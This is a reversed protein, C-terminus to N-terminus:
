SEHGGVRLAARLAGLKQETEDWEREPISDAVIGAGAQLYLNAENAFLTRIAIASDMNGNLSFYGVIGAYPGRRSKELEAIIEMARVKPAGTVTGAPFLAVLADLCDKSPKLRGEVKSVIHQVHSFREVGMYEPVRVSGFESVKGLDNRALDVLMNHEACEKEDALLEREYAKREAENKGLPRTGAIPYTSIVGNQVAVLMEPSSGAIVRDFFDLYYMYPSPNLRRLARYVRFLDGSYKAHLKKSLVVQYIDGAKIYEKARKVGEIFEERTTDSRPEEHTFRAEQASQHTSLKILSRIESSRDRDHSFYYAYNRKHDYAIGDLYLGLEFDPFLKEGGQPIKEIYRVFDYSIYGVLGGIYKFPTGKPLGFQALTRRLYGIPDQTQEQYEGNVFIRGEKLAIVCLPDFGIFTFEALRQPGPSSELIFSNKYNRRIRAYLEFPDTLELERILLSPFSASSGELRGFGIV